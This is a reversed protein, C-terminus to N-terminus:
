LAHDKDFLLPGYFKIIKDMGEPNIDDRSNFGRLEYEEKDSNLKYVWAYFQKDPKDQFIIQIDKGGAISNDITVVVFKSKYYSKDFSDLGSTIGDGEDTEIAEATIGATDSNDELYADLAERLFIVHPNKYVQYYGELKEPTIGILINPQEEESQQLQKASLAPEKQPMSGKLLWGIGMGILLLTIFPLLKRFM